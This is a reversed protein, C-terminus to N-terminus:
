VDVGFERLAKILAAIDNKEHDYFVTKYGIRAPVVLNKSQNDIFVCEKLSVGLSEAAKYFIKEDDKGCGIEASIIISDFIRDLEYKKRLVAIRDKKNDTIIGIKYKDKIASALRLMPENCLTSDFADQLLGIDLDQGICDCFLPWIDEHTKQGTNLVEKFQSYCMCLKQTDIGTAQNIYKCTTYTGTKDPTLVGDYDFFVAKIM